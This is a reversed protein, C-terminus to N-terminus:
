KPLKKKRRILCYVITSALGIAGLSAIITLNDNYSLSLLHSGQSVVYPNADGNANAWAVYRARANAISAETGSQFYSLSGSSLTTIQSKIATYKTSCEPTSIEGGTYAMIRDAVSFAGNMPTPAGTTFDTGSVNTDIGVGDTITRAISTTNSPAPARTDGEYLSATTGAGVLDIVNTDTATTPPTVSNTLVLKFGTAGMAFTGVFDATPINVTGGTGAAEQILFYSKALITGSLTSYSSFANAASAYFLYYGTLSINSNTNNYLEVFDQKYTAGSNGGGGYVENIVIPTGSFPTDESVTVTCTATATGCTATIITEGATLANVLGGTTVSAVSPVSSSWTVSGSATAILTESGGVLLSTTAKNLSVSDTPESGGTTYTVVIQTIQVNKASTSVQFYGYGTTANTFTDTASVGAILRNSTTTYTSQISNGFYVGIQGTTSTGSTYTTAVSTVTGLSQTNYLYGKNQVFMLYNSSTGKYIGAESFAFNSTTDTHATPTTNELGSATPFTPTFTDGYAITATSSTPTGAPTVTININASVGADLTSTATVVASGVQTATILGSGSVTVNSAGSTVSWTVTKTADAPVSSAVSAQFTQNVEISESTTNLTISTPTVSPQSDFAGVVDTTPDAYGTPTSSYGTGDLNATGWIFDAWEPFDIFPNRNSTYNNYLLNNRHIEFEDVPDLHHWALLDSLIGMKGTTTTTSQYGTAAYNANQVLELNPNNCDIGDADSGSYYNYRSVMYFISRAIDGKDSDQPEFVSGSGMTRSVGKINNSLYSYSAGCDTEIQSPNVFGYFYNSHINNAYGNASSLHMPDGRAGGQGVDEFGQSKPWLHERNIGYNTQTHDGWARTLNPADRNVYYSHLYPNDGTTGYVYGSITNTSSNYGAISTKPSLTWDRDAIEYLKWVADGSDYSIYKQGNKLIPKLNKLLNTGQKETNSLANLSSYYNRITTETADNLNITTPIATTTYGKTELSDNFNNSIFLGSAVFSIAALVGVASLLITKKM